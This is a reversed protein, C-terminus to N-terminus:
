EIRIMKIVDSIQSVKSDYESEAMPETVFAFEGAIGPAEICIAKPFAKGIEEIRDGINGKVRVFFGHHM